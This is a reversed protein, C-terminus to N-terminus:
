LIRDVGPLRRLVAAAAFALAIAAPAVVAFRALAPLSSDRLLLALGVLVPAQLIFAGYASRALECSLPGRRRGRLVDTLVVAACVCIVGETLPAAVAQWSWGGAFVDIDGELGILVAVLLATGLGIPICRRRLDQPIRDFWGRRGADIGLLFLALCQGWQWLHAAFIQSSDLEWRLRMVFSVVFIAAATLVLTRGRLDGPAAPRLFPAAVTSFLLLVGIFWAVNADLERLQEEWVDAASGGDVWWQVAPVVLLVFVAFPIGLRLWRDALFRGVGKRAVSAPTFAGALFFFLGMGFIAGLALPVTLWEPGDEEYFWSGEAGYTIAAHATIVGATLVVKLDDVHGLRDHV